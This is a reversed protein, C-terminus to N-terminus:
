WNCEVNSTTADMGNYTSRTKKNFSANFKWISKNYQHGGLTMDYTYTGQINPIIRNPIYYERCLQGEQDFVLILNNVPHVDCNWVLVYILDQRSVCLYISQLHHINPTTILWRYIFSGTQNNFISIQNTKTHLCVLFTSGSSICDM